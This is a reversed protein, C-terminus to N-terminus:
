FLRPYRRATQVDETRQLAALQGSPDFVRFKGALAFVQRKLLYQNFQFISNM